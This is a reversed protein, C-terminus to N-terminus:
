ILCGTFQGSPHHKATIILFIMRAVLDDTTKKLSPQMEDNIAAEFLKVTHLQIYVTIFSFELSSCYLLCM